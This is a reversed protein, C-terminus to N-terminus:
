EAMPLGPDFASVMIRQLPEHHKTITPLAWAAVCVEASGSATGAVQEALGEAIVQDMLATVAPAASDAGWRQAAAEIEAHTVGTELMQLIAWATPNASYFFKSRLDLIVAGDNLVTCVVDARLRWRTQRPDHEM